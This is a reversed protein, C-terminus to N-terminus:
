APVQQIGASIGRGSALPGAGSAGGTTSPGLPLPLPVAVPVPVLVPVLVPVAQPPSFRAQQALLCHLAISVTHLSPPTQTAQPMVPRGQQAFLAQGPAPEIQAAFPFQTM